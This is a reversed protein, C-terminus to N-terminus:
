HCPKEDVLIIESILDKPLDNITKKLTEEANYAPMVVIIKSKKAM